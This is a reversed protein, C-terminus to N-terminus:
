CCDKRRRGGKNGLGLGLVLALAFECACGDRRRRGCGASSGGLLSVQRCGDGEPRLDFDCRRSM